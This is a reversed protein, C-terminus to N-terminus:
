CSANGLTAHRWRWCLSLWCVPLLRRMHWSAFHPCRLACAASPGCWQVAPTTARVARWRSARPAPPWNAWNPSYRRATRRSLSVITAVYSLAAAKAPVSEACNLAVILSLLLAEDHKSNATSRALSRRKDAFRCYAGAASSTATCLYKELLAAHSKALTHEDLLAAWRALADLMASRVREHGEGLAVSSLTECVTHALAGDVPATRTLLRDSLCCYKKFFVLDFCYM